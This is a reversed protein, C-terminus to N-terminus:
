FFLRGSQILSDLYFLDSILYCTLSVPSLIPSCIQKQASKEFVLKFTLELVYKNKLVFLFVIVCSIQPVFVVVFTSPFLM